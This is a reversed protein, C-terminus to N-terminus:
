GQDSHHLLGLGPCRRGIAMELAVITLHRDNVPSKAWGVIFKSFLDLIVALFLKGNGTLLETTDGVWKQNPATAEFNRGLVNAAVPQDHDSMTTSKYRKRPRARLGEQRMLRGVRKQSVHVDNTVAMEKQVRPAGYRNGREEHAQRVLVALRRDDDAHASPPRDVWAYYGARSVKLTRCM